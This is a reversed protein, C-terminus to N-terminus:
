LIINNFRQPTKLKKKKKPIHTWTANVEVCLQQLNYM